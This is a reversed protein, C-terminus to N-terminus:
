RYEVRMVPDSWTISLRRCNMRSYRSVSEQIIRGLNNHTPSDESFGDRLFFRKEKENYFISLRGLKVGRFSDSAMKILEQLTIKM